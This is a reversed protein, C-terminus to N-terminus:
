IKLMSPPQLTKRSLTDTEELIKLKLEANVHQEFIEHPHKEAFNNAVDNKAHKISKSKSNIPKLFQNKAPIKNMWSKPKCKCEEVYKFLEIM